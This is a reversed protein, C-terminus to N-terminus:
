AIGRQRDAETDTRRGNADLYWIVYDDLFCGWPSAPDLAVRRRGNTWRMRRAISGWTLSSPEREDALAAEPGSYLVLPGPAGVEVDAALADHHLLAIAFSRDELSGASYQQFLALLPTEALRQAADRWGPLEDDAEAESVPAAAPSGEFWLTGCRSCRWLRLRKPLDDVIFPEHRGAYATATCVNCGPSDIM